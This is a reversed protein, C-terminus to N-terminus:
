CVQSRQAADICPPACAATASRRRHVHNTVSATRCITHYVAAGQEDHDDPESCLSQPVAHRDGEAELPSRRRAGGTAFLRLYGRRQRPVSAALLFLLKLLKLLKAALTLTHGTAVRLSHPKPPRTALRALPRPGLGAAGIRRAIRNTLQWVQRYTHDGGDGSLALRDPHTRYGRFYLDTLHM